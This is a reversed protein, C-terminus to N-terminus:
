LGGQTVSIVQLIVLLTAIFSVILLGRRTRPNDIHDM